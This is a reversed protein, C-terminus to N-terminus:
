EETDGNEESPYSIDPEATQIAGDDEEPEPEEEGDETYLPKAGAESTDEEKKDKDTKAKGGFSQSKQTTAKKKSKNKKKTTKTGNAKTTTVTTETEDETSEEKVSAVSALNEIITKGTAKKVAASATLTTAFIIAAAILARLLIRVTKGRNKNESKETFDYDFPTVEFNECNVGQTELLADTYEEVKDFDIEDINKELESDLKDNLLQATEKELKEGSLIENIIEKKDM